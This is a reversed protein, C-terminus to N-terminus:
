RCRKAVRNTRSVRARGQVIDDVRVLVHAGIDIDVIRSDDSVDISL